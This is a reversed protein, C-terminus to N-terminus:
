TTATIALHWKCFMIKVEKINSYNNWSQIYVSLYYSVDAM